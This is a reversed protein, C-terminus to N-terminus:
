ISNEFAFYFMYKEIEANCVDQNFTGLTKFSINKGCRKHGCRGFVDVRMYKVLEKVFWERRSETGCHSVMWAATKTSDKESWYDRGQVSSGVSPKPIVRGYPVVVDSDRKYTMTWNFVGGLRGLNVNQDDVVIPPAEVSFFIWIQDPRHYKPLDYDPHLDIPHFLVADASDLLRHDYVLECRSEECQRSVQRFFIREWGFSQEHWLTTWILIRKPLECELIPVQDTNETINSRKMELKPYYKQFSITMLIIIVLLTLVIKSGGMFAPHPSFTVKM